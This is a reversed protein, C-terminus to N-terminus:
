WRFICFRCAFTLFFAYALDAALMTRRLQSSCVHSQNLALKIGLLILWLFSFQSFGVGCSVDFHM